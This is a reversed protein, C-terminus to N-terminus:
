IGSMVTVYFLSYKLQRRSYGNEVEVSSKHCVFSAAIM